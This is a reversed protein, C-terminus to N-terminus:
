KQYSYKWNPVVKQITVESFISAGEGNTSTFEEAEKLSNFPFAEYGMPGYIKKSGIVYFATRGSIWMGSNRDVVWILLPNIAKYVYM